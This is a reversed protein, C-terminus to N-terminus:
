DPLHQRVKNCSKLAETSSCDQLFDKLEVIPLMFSGTPETVVMQFCLIRDLFHLLFNPHDRHRLELPM